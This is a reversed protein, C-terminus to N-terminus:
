EQLVTRDNEIGIQNPWHSVSRAVESVPVTSPDRMEFDEFSFTDMTCADVIVRGTYISLVLWHKVISESMYLRVVRPGEQVNNWKWQQIPWDAAWYPNEKHPDIIEYDKLNIGMIAKPDIDWQDIALDIGEIRLAYLCPHQKIWVSPREIPFVSHIQICNSVSVLSMRLLMEMIGFWAPSQRSWSPSVGMVPFWGGNQHNAAMSLLKSPRIRWELLTSCCTALKYPWPRRIFYVGADGLAM